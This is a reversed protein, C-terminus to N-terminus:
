VLMTRFQTTRRRRAVVLVVAVLFLVGVSTGMVIWMVTQMPVMKQGASYHTNANHPRSLAKQVVPKVDEVIRDQPDVDVAPPAAAAAEAVQPLGADSSGPQTSWQVPLGRGAPRDFTTANASAAVAADTVDDAAAGSDAPLESAPQDQLDVEVARDRLSAVDQKNLYTRCRPSARRRHAMLCMHVRGNGPPVAACSSQIERWCRGVVTNRLQVRCTLSLQKRQKRLCVMITYPHSGQRALDGCLRVTDETCPAVRRVLTDVHAAASSDGMPPPPPPRAPWDSPPMAAAREAHARAVQHLLQELASRTRGSSSPLSDAVAGYGSRRPQGPQAFIVPRGDATVAVHSDDPRGTFVFGPRGGVAVRDRRDDFQVPEGRLGGRGPRAGSILEEMISSLAQHVASGQEIAPATPVVSASVARDSDDVSDQGSSVFIMPQPTPADGDNMVRTFPVFRQAAVRAAFLALLGLLLTKMM